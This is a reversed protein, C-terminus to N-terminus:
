GAITTQLAITNNADGYSIANTVVYLKLVPTAGVGANMVAEIVDGRQLYTAANFYAAGEVVAAPDATVYTYRYHTTDSRAGFDAIQGLMNTRRLSGNNLTFAM